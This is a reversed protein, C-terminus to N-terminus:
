RPNLLEGISYREQFEEMAAEFDAFEHESEFKMALDLPRDFGFNNEFEFWDVVKSTQSNIILAKLHTQNTLLYLDKLAEVHNPNVLEEHVSEVTSDAAVRWLLFVIAGHATRALGSRCLLKFPRAEGIAVCWTPEELVALYVETGVSEDFIARALLCGSKGRLREPLPPVTLARPPHKWQNKLVM